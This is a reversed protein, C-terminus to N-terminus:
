LFLEQALSSILLVLIVHNVFIVLHHALQSHLIHKLSLYFVSLNTFRMSHYLSKYLNNQYPVYIVIYTIKFKNRRGGRGLTYLGVWKAAEHLVLLCADSHVDTLAKIM